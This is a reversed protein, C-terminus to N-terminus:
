RRTAGLGKRKTTTGGGGGLLAGWDDDSGAKKSPKRPPPAFGMSPNSTPLPASKRVPPARSAGPPPLDWMGDGTGATGTTGSSAVSAGSAGSGSRSLGGALAGAGRRAQASGVPPGLMALFDEEGDYDKHKGSRIDMAGWGDADDDEDEDAEAGNGNEASQFDGFVDNSGGNSGGLSRGSNAALPLSSFAAPIAPKPTLSSAPSAALPLPAAHSRAPAGFKFDESSIGGSAARSTPKSAEQRALLSSTMSSLSSLGWGAVSGGGSGAALSAGNGIGGGGAAGGYESGAKPAAAECAATMSEHNRQLQPQFTAVIKFGLTRVDTASDVLLPAVAPLVRTAVDKVNFMEATVLIANAGAARAPPFPDKLSRLFAATLVKNRTTLNLRGALRGLCVTTNTRIAPEPDVQLRAFHSMLASNLNKESLVPVVAVVAKVAADRLAPAAADQMAAGMAAFVPGNVQVPTMHKAFVDIKGLLEVRVARDLAANSYWAVAHPAVVTESFEQEGMRDKMKVVCSFAALAGHGSQVSQSLMPLIKHTCFADPLGDMLTPLKTLFAERELEGKLALNEVFLNLEVFKSGKFYPHNPVQGAPARAAPNSALLKQYASLLGKPLCATGRLQDASTLAGNHAHFMLCGLAWSDVAGPAAAAVASWNGNAFEPSQYAKAQVAAARGLSAAAAHQTVVELAGLKWDGAPTVFVGAANVRGHILGSSHMFALARAVTFLGWQIAERGPGKGGEALLTELPTAPETAIFIAGDPHEASSVYRLVDPHKLRKLQALAAKALEPKPPAGYPSPVSGAGGAAPDFVFALAPAGGARAVARHLAFVPIPDHSPLPAQLTYGPTLDRSVAGVLKGLLGNMSVAGPSPPETHPHGSLTGGRAGAGIDHQRSCLATVRNVPTTSRHSARSWDARALASVTAFVGSVRPGRRWTSLQYLWRATAATGAAAELRRRTQPIPLCPLTM